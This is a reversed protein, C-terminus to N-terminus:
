MRRARGSQARSSQGLGAHSEAHVFVLLAAGVMGARDGLEAQRVALTATEPAWVHPSVAERLGDWFAGPASGLGGGVVVLEPDLANVIVAIQAGMARGATDAVEIAAPDGASAAALVEEAASVTRGTVESFRRALGPGSAVSELPPCRLLDHGSSLVSLPASGILGANGRVGPWPTQHLVIAASVGTGVTVYLFADSRRGAGFRAEALAGCRVDADVSVPGHPQFVTGLDVGLWDVVAATVVSGDPRVSEPLGIGLGSIAMDREVAVQALQEVLRRAQEVGAGAARETREELVHVIRGDPHVLGARVKTGGVDIGVACESARPTSTRATV